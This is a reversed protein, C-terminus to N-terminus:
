IFSGTQYNLKVGAEANFVWINLHFKQPDRLSIAQVQVGRPVLEQEVYLPSASYYVVENPNTRLFNRVQTEPYAMGGPNNPKNTGVNQARTGWILNNSNMSGGLSWALLHSKNFVYGRYGNITVIRNNSHTGMWKGLDSNFAGDSFEGAIRSAEPIAPRPTITSNRKIVDKFRIFSGVAQTRGLNDLGQYNVIQNNVPQQLYNEIQNTQANIQATVSKDFHPENKNIVVYNEPYEAPLFKLNILDTQSNIQTTRQNFFGKSLSNLSNSCGTIILIQLLLFAGILFNITRKSFRHYHM